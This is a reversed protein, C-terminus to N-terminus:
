RSAGAEFRAVWPSFSLRVTGPKGIRDHYRSKAVRLLVGGEDQHVIIGVDPKNMWAASDSIDYLTPMPVKGDRDKALKTPHAVV